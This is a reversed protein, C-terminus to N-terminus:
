LHRIDQEQLKLPDHCLLLLGHVLESTYPSFMNDILIGFVNRHLDCICIAVEVINRWPRTDVKSCATVLKSGQKCTGVTHSDSVQHELVPLLQTLCRNRTDPDPEVMSELKQERNLVLFSFM